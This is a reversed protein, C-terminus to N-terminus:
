RLGIALYYLTYPELSFIKLNMWYPYNSTIRFCLTKFILERQGGLTQLLNTMMLTVGSLWSGGPNWLFPAEPELQFSFPFLAICISNTPFTADTWIFLVTISFFLGLQESLTMLQFPQHDNDYASLSYILACVIQLKTFVLYQIWIPNLPWASPLM